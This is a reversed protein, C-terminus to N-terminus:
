KKLRILPDATVDLHTACIVHDLALHSFVVLRVQDNTESLRYNTENSCM